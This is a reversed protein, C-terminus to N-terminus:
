RPIEAHWLVEKPIMKLHFYRGSKMKVPSNSQGQNRQFGLVHTLPCKRVCTNSKLRKLLITTNRGFISKKGLPLDMRKPWFHRVKWAPIKWKNKDRPIEAKSFWKTLQFSARFFVKRNREWGSKMKEPSKRQAQDRPLGLVHRPHCKRVCQNSQFSKFSYKYKSWFDVEMTKPWFHHGFKWTPMKWNNIDRPIEAHRFDGKPIM